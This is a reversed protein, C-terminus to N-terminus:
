ASPVLPPESSLLVILVPNSLIILMTFYLCHHLAIYDPLEVPLYLVYYFSSSNQPAGACIIETYCATSTEETAMM